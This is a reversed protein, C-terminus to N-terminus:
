PPPPPPYSISGGTPDVVLVNMRRRRAEAICGRTGSAKGYPFALVLAEPYLALMRVNRRPGASPDTVGGSDRRWRARVIRSDVEMTRCWHEAMADAGDPCGGHVVLEPDHAALMRWIVYRAPWIRSGTVIVIGGSM